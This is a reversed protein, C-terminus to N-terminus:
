LNFDTCYARQHHPVGHQLRVLFNAFDVALKLTIKGRKEFQDKHVPLRNHLAVYPQRGDNQTLPQNVSQKSTRQLGALTLAVTGTNSLLAGSAANNCSGLM